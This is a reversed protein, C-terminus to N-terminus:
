DTRDYITVCIFSYLQEEKIGMNNIFPLALKM